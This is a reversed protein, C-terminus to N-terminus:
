IIKNKLDFIQNAFYISKEPKILSLQEYIRIALDFKEQKILIKAFTESIPLNKLSEDEGSVQNDNRQYDIFDKKPKSISPLNILFREILENQTPLDLDHGSQVMPDKQQYDPADIVSYYYNVRNFCQLAIKKKESGYYAENWKLLYFFPYKEKDVEVHALVSQDERDIKNLLFWLNQAKNM